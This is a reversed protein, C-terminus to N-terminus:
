TFSSHSAFAVLKPPWACPQWGAHSQRASRRVILSGHHHMVCPFDRRHEGGCSDEIQENHTMYGSAVCRILTRGQMQNAQANVRYAGTEAMRLVASQDSLLHVPDLSGAPMALLRPGNSGIPSPLGAPALAPKPVPPFRGCKPTHDHDDLEDRQWELRESRDNIGTPADADVTRIAMSRFLM